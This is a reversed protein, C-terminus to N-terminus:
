QGVEVWEGAVWVQCGQSCPGTSDVVVASARLRAELRAALRAMVPIHSLRRAVFLAQEVEEVTASAESFVRLDEGGSSPAVGFSPLTPESDPANDSPVPAPLFELSREVEGLSEYWRRLRLRAEEASCLRARAFALVENEARSAPGASTTNGRPLLGNASVQGIAPLPTFLSRLLSPFRSLSQPFM